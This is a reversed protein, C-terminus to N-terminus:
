EESSSDQIFSYRALGGVRGKKGGQVKEVVGADKWARIRRYANSKHIDAVESLDRVTWENGLKERLDATSESDALADLRLARDQGLDLTLCMPEVGRGLQYDCEVEVRTATGEVIKRKFQVLVDAWGVFNFSGAAARLIDENKRNEHHVVVIAAGTADRLRDLQECLAASDQPSNIDGRWVRRMVDLIVMDAKHKVVGGLLRQFDTEDMLDFGNKPRTWIEFCDPDWDPFTKSSLLDRMRKRTDGRNDELAFLLTRVPKPVELKGMLTGAKTAGLAVALTFWSKLYHPMAIFMASGQRPILGTILQEPEPFEASLFDLASYQWRNGNQNDHPDPVMAASKEIAARADTLIKNIDEGGSLAQEQLANAAFIVKRMASKERVIQAYHGVNTVRPLGDALQSIYAAGGAAELIDHRTLYEMLFVPEIPRGERALEIMASFIRKHQPLFFDDFTLKEAAARIASNDLIIAGLISREADLSQPLPRELYPQQLAKRPRSIPISSMKGPVSQALINVSRARTLCFVEYQARPLM